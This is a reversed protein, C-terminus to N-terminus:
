LNETIEIVHKEEEEGEPPRRFIKKGIVNEAHFCGRPMPFVADINDGDWVQLLAWTKEDDIWVPEGDMERLEELTLPENPPYHGLLTDISVGFFDALRFLAEINPERTGKEYNVYTTYPIELAKAVDKMSLGRKERLERLRIM